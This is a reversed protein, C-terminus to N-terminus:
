MFNVNGVETKFEPRDLLALSANGHHSLRGSHLPPEGKAFLRRKASTEARGRGQGGRDKSRKRQM